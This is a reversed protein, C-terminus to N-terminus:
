YQTTNSLSEKLKIIEEQIKKEVQNKNQQILQISKLQEELKKIQTEKSQIEDVLKDKL